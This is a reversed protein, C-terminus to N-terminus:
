LFRSFSLFLKVRDLCADVQNGVYEKWKTGHMFIFIWIQLQFRAAYTLLGCMIGVIDFECDFWHQVNEKQM